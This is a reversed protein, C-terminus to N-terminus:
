YEVTQKKTGDLMTDYSMNATIYKQVALGLNPDGFNSFVMFQFLEEESMELLSPMYRSDENADYYDEEFFFDVKHNSYFLATYVYDMSAIYVTVEKTGTGISRTIIQLQTKM